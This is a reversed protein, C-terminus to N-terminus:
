GIDAAVVVGEADFLVNIRNRVVNSRRAAFRPSRDVLSRGEAEARAQAQARTLGLYADVGPPDDGWVDRLQRRVVLDRADGDM